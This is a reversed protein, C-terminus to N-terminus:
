IAMSTVQGRNDGLNSIDKVLPYRFTVKKTEKDFDKNEEILAPQRTGRCDNKYVQCLVQHLKPVTQVM